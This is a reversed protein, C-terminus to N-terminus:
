HGDELRGGPHRIATCVGLEKKILDLNRARGSFILTSLIQSEQVIYNPRM